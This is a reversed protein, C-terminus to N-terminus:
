GPCVSANLLCIPITTGPYVCCRQQGCSACPCTTCGTAPFYAECGGAVCLESVECSDGCNGCHLPHTAFQALPVCATEEDGCPEAPPDQDECAVSSCARNFCRPTPDTCASFCAGCHEPDSALDVCKEGCRTLTPRCVCGGNCYEDDACSAFCAGCHNPDVALDACYGDCRVLGAPCGTSADDGGEGGDGTTTVVTTHTCSMAFCTALLIAPGCVNRAAQMM